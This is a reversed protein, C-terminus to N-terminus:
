GQCSRLRRFRRARRERWPNSCNWNRNKGSWSSVGDRPWVPFDCDIWGLGGHTIRCTFADIEEQEELSLLFDPALTAQHSSLPIRPVRLALSQSATFRWGISGLDEAWGM